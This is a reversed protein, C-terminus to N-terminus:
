RVETANDPPVLDPPSAPEGAYGVRRGSLDRYRMRMYLHRLGQAWPAPDEVRQVEAVEAPDDIVEIVGHAVVSWAQQSDYDLEDIEFAADAGPGRSALETWPATRWVIEDRALAYNVPVVDIGARSPFAVRGVVQTCLLEACEEFTLEVIPQPM